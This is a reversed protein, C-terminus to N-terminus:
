TDRFHYKSFFARTLIYNKAADANMTEIKITAGHLDQIQIGQDKIPIELGKVMDHNELIAVQVIVYKKVQMIIITVSLACGTEKNSIRIEIQIIKVGEITTEVGEITTEVGEITTESMDMKLNKLMAHHVIVFRKVQSIIIKVNQAYGIVLSSIIKDPIVLDLIEETAKKGATIEEITTEELAMDIAVM